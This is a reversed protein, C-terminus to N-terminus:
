VDTGGPRHATSEYAAIKALRAVHRGGEFATELWVKLWGVVQEHDPNTRGGLAIVNSDNHLRTLRATWWSSGSWTTAPTRGMSATTSSDTAPARNWATTRSMRPSM